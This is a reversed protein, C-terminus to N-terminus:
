FIYVQTKDARIRDWIARLDAETAMISGPKPGKLPSGDVPPSHIAYGNPLMLVYRGLGGSVVPRTEPAAQDNMAYVWEPVRWEHDAMKGEVAFAGKLPVFTWTKGTPSTITRGEGVTIDGERLLNDGYYFRLKKAETDVALYFDESKLSQIMQARGKLQEELGRQTLDMEALEEKVKQVDEPTRAEEAIVAAFRSSVRERHMRALFVGAIGLVLLLLTLWLPPRPFSRRDPSGPRTQNRRDSM